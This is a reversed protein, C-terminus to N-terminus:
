NLLGVFWSAPKHIYSLTKKASGAAAKEGYKRTMAEEVVKEVLEKDVNIKHIVLLGQDSPKSDPQIITDQPTM